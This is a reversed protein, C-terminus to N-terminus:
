MINSSVKQQVEDIKFTMEEEDDVGNLEEAFKAMDIVINQVSSIVRTNPYKIINPFASDNRSHYKEFNIVIVKTKPNKELIKL